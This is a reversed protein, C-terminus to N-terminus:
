TLLWLFSGSRFGSLGLAALVSTYWQSQAQLKNWSMRPCEMLEKVFVNALALGLWCLLAFKHWHSVQPIKNHKGCGWKRWFTNAIALSGLFHPGWVIYDWNWGRGWECSVHSLFLLNLWQTSFIWAATHNCHKANGCYGLSIMLCCFPRPGAAGAAWESFPLHWKWETSLGRQPDPFGCSSSLLQQDM